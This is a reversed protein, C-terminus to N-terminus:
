SIEGPAVVVGEGPLFPGVFYHFDAQCLLSAKAAVGGLPCLSLGQEPTSLGFREQLTFVLMRPVPM